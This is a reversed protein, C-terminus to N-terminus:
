PPHHLVKWPHEQNPSPQRRLELWETHFSGPKDVRQYTHAGLLRTPSAVLQSTLSSTSLQRLLVICHHLSPDPLGLHTAGDRRSAVFSAGKRNSTPLLSLALPKELNLNSM